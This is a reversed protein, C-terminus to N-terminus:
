QVPNLIWIETYYRISCFRQNRRQDTLSLWGLERLLATVSIICYVGRAWRAARRQVVEVMDVEQKVTPDWISGCYELSSRVLSLYAM